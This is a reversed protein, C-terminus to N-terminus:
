NWYGLNTILNKLNMYDPIICGGGMIFVILLHSFCDVLGSRHCLIVVTTHCLIDMAASPLTRTISVLNLVIHCATNTPHLNDHM